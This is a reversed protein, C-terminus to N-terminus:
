KPEGILMFGAWFFPHEPLTIRGLPTQARVRGARLNRILSRQADRLSDIKSGSRLLKLIARRTPDSLAAFADKVAREDLPRLVEIRHLGIGLILRFEGLLNVLRRQLVVVELPGVLKDRERREFYGLRAHAVAAFEGDILNADPRADLVLRMGCEYRFILFELLFCNFLQFRRVRQRQCRPFEGRVVVDVLDLAERVRPQM